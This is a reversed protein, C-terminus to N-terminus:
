HEDEALTYFEGPTFLESLQSENCDSKIAQGIHWTEGHDDSYCLYPSNTL